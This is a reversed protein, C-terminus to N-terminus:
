KEELYVVKLSPKFYFINIEKTKHFAEDKSILVLGYNKGKRWNIVTKTIPVKIIKLNDYNTTYIDNGNLSFANALPSTLAVIRGLSTETPQHAVEGPALYVYKVVELNLVASVITINKPLQNLNFYIYSRLAEHQKFFCNVGWERYSNEYGVIATGEIGKWSVYDSRSPNCIINFQRFGKWKPQIVDYPIIITKKVIYKSIHFMDSMGEARKDSTIIKIRFQRNLTSTDELKPITWKYANGLWWNKQITKILRKGTYDYLEINVKKGKLYLKEWSIRYTNGETWNSKNNPSFIKIERIIKPRNSQNLSINKSINSLSISVDKESKITFYGKSLGAAVGSKKVQIQYHDGASIPGVGILSGITWSYSGTNPVNQAIYGLSKGNQFLKIGVTGSIGSSNWRVIYTNGIVWNEGGNPSIVTISQSYALTLIFVGGLFFLLIRKKM